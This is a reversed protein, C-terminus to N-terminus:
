DITRYFPLFYFSVRIGTQSKKIRDPDKGVYEPNNLLPM